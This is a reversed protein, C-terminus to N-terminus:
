FTVASLTNFLGVLNLDLSPEQSHFTTLTLAGHCIKDFWVMYIEDEEWMRGGFVMSTGILTVEQYLMKNKSNMSRSVYLYMYIYIQQLSSKIEMNM